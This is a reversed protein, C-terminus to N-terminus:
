KWTEELVVFRGNHWLYILSFIDNDDVILHEDDYKDYFIRYLQFPTVECEGIDDDFTALWHTAEEVKEVARCIFGKPEIRFQKLEEESLPGEIGNEEMYKAIRRIAYKPLCKPSPVAYIGKPFDDDFEILEKLLKEEEKDM